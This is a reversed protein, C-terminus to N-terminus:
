ACLPEHTDVFIQATWDEQLLYFTEPAEVQFRGMNYSLLAGTNQAVVEGAKSVGHVVLEIESGHEIGAVGSPREKGEFVTAVRRGGAEIADILASVEASSETRVILNAGAIQCTRSLRCLGVISDFAPM